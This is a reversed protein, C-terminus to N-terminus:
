DNPRRMGAVRKRRLYRSTKALSLGFPTSVVYGLWVAVLCLLHSLLINAWVDLWQQRHIAQFSLLSFSSFTTYGGCFGVLLFLRSKPGLYIRGSPDSVFHLFSILFCGSVNILLTALPPWSHFPAFWEGVGFRLLSGIGGGIAILVYNRMEHVQSRNQAIGGKM